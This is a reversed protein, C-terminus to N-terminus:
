NIPDEPDFAQYLRPLSFAQQRIRFNDAELSKPKASRVRRKPIGLILQVKMLMTPTVVCPSLNLLFSAWRYTPLIMRFSTEFQKCDTTNRSFAKTGELTRGTSDPNSKTYEHFRIQRVLANAGQM